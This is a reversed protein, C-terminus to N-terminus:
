IQVDKASAVANLKVPSIELILGNQGTEQRLEKLPSRASMPDETNM